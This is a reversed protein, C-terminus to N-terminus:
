RACLPQRGGEGGRPRAAGAAARPEDPAGGVAGTGAGGRGGGGGAGGAHAAALAGDVDRRRDERRGSRRRGAPFLAPKEICSAGEGGGGDAREWCQPSAGSRGVGRLGSVFCNWSNRAEADLQYLLTAVAVDYAARRAGDALFARLVLVRRYLAEADDVRSEVLLGKLLPAHDFIPTTDSLIVPVGQRLSDLVVNPVADTWSVHLNIHMKGVAAEFDHARLMGYAMVKANCRNKRGHEQLVGDGPLVNVHLETSGPLMCAAGLAVFANKVAERGATNWLGVRLGDAPLPAVALPLLAETLFPLVLTCAPVGVRRTYATMDREIFNLHIDGRQAAAMLRNLLLHEDPDANSVGLGSHYAVGVAVATDRLESAFEFTGMPVGQVLLASVRLEETLLAKLAGRRASSSGFDRNVMLLPLSLAASVRLAALRIGMWESHCLLVAGASVAMAKFAARTPPVIAFGSYEEADASYGEAELQTVSASKPKLGLKEAIFPCLEGRTVFGDGDYDM